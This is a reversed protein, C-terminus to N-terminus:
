VTKKCKKAKGVRTIYQVTHRNQCFECVELFFCMESGGLIEQFPIREALVSKLFWM